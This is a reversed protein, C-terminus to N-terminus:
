YLFAADNSAYTYILVVNNLENAGVENIGESRKVAEEM